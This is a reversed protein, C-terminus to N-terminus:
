SYPTLVGRVIGSFNVTKFYQFFYLCGETLDLNYCVDKMCDYIVTGLIVDTGYLTM